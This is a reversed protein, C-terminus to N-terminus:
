IPKELFIVLDRLDISYKDNNEMFIFYRNLANTNREMKSFIRTLWRTYEIKGFQLAFM